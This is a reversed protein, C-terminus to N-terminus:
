KPRPPDTQGAGGLKRHLARRIAHLLDDPNVPKQLFMECGAGLARQPAPPYADASLALVPVAATQPDTKLRKTAAIGDLVPMWIDMLVLDPRHEAAKKLAEAGNAADEVSFGWFELWLEWLHRVDADDDVILIRQPRPLVRREFAPATVVLSHTRNLEHGMM